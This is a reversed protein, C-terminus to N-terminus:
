VGADRLMTFTRLAMLGPGAAIAGCVPASGTAAAPGIAIVFLLLLVALGAGIGFGVRAATDFKRSAAGMIAGVLLAVAGGFAAWVMAVSPGGAPLSASMVLGLALLGGGIAVIM